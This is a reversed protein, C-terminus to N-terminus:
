ARIGGGILREFEAEPAGYSDAALALLTERSRVGILGRQSSIAGASELAHVATTVGSRRVGLMAGLLRHTLPLEPGGVRDQCMLLWRALRQEIVYAGNALSTQMAQVMMVQVYRLLVARLSPSEDLARRVRDAPVRWGSGSIQVVAEEPCRDAGLILATGVLGERGVVGVELRRGKATAAVLSVMGSNPFWVAGIPANSGYLVQGRELDVWELPGLRDADAPSVAALLANGGSLISVDL